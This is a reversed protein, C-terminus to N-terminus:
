VAGQGPRSRFDMQSDAARSLLFFRVADPGVEDLVERLTIIDGTRKSLRVVEGGRKLTVLQYLVITLREPGPEARADHGEHPARPGSPRGGM